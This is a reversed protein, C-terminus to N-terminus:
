DNSVVLRLHGREPASTKKPEVLKGLTESELRIQSIASPEDEIIEVPRRSIIGSTVAPQIDVTKIKFRRPTRGVRGHSVLAGLARSVDGFDSRLPMLIMSASLEPKGFGGEAELEIKIIAPDAFLRTVAAGFAEREDPAILSSLPMGAIQMGMLENLHTGAVRMKAMSPAIREMLFANELASEMGRPDIQSRLPVESGDCLGNWYAEVIRLPAMRKAKERETMSVVDQGKGGKGFM